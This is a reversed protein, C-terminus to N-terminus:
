ISFIFLFNNKKRLHIFVQKANQEQETQKKQNQFQQTLQQNNQKEIDLLQKLDSCNSCSDSNSTQSKQNDKQEIMKKLQTNSKRESDLIREYEDCKECLKSKEPRNM